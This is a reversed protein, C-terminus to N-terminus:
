EPPSIAREQGEGTFYDRGSDKLSGPVKTPVHIGVASEANLTEDILEDPHPAAFFWFPVFAIQTRAEDLVERYPAFHAEAADADGLHMVRAGDPGTIRYAINAVDAHRGPWGSHPTRIAEVTAGAVEFRQAPGGNDLSVTVIRNAYDERWGPAARLQEVAQAPAVLQVEPQAALLRLLHKASFHDGHAHSVFVADVHDYPPAGAVIRETVAPDMKALTGFHNDYVPDFLFKGGGLEARVGANLISVARDGTTAGPAAAPTESSASCAALALAAFAAFLSRTM